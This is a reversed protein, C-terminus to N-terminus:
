LDTVMRIINVHNDANVVSLSVAGGSIQIIRIDIYDTPVLSVLCSGNIGELAGAAEKQYGLLAYNVGNKFVNLYVGAASSQLLACATVLYIGGMGSPVTYKWSAGTTVASRSDLVVTSYNIITSTNDPISQSAGTAVAYARTSDKLNTTTPNTITPSTITAGSAITAAGTIAPATLSKNTLTQTGSVTVLDVSEWELNNSSDVGLTLDAGNAQNRWKVGDARALRLAGASAANATRSTFHSSVLGYTGGFNADATLTFTGGSKQLAGSAVAQMFGTVNTGWNTEDTSPLTYALGNFTVSVSM